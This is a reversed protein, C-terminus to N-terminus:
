WPQVQALVPRLYWLWLVLTSLTSSLSRFCTCTDAGRYWDTIITNLTQSFSSSRFSSQLEAARIAAAAEQQHDPPAPQLRVDEQIRRKKRGDRRRRRKRRQKRKRRREARLLCVACVPWSSCCYDPFLIVSQKTDKWRHIWLPHLPKRTWYADSTKSGAATEICEFFVFVCKFLCLNFTFNAVTWYSSNLVRGSHEARHTM